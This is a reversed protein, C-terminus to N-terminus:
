DGASLRHRLGRGHRRQEACVRFKCFHPQAGPLQRVAHSSLKISLAIGDNQVFLQRSLRFRNQQMFNLMRNLFVLAKRDPAVRFVAFPM